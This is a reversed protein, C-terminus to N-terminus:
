RGEKKVPQLLGFSDDIRRYIVQVQRSDEDLFMWFNYGMRDMERAAEGSSMPRMPVQKVISIKAQNLEGAPALLEPLAPVGKHREKMREKYKKLQNDIKDSALDVAAYLDAAQALARFTQKSAHIVIEAEHSRKEVSLLVQAWVIHNFYRQAKLVKEEVYDRIPKTLRLHRGTIHIQM